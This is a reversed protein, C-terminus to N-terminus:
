FSHRVQMGLYKPSSGAAPGTIGGFVLGSYNANTDNRVVNYYAGIATRKSLAYNYHAQWARSSTGSGDFAAPVAAAAGSIGISGTLANTRVYDLGVFHSGWTYNGALRWATKKLGTLVNVSPAAGAAIPDTNYSM